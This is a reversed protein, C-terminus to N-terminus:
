ADEGLPKLHAFNARHPKAGGFAESAVMAKRLCLGIDHEDTFGIGGHLQVADRTVKMAATSARAKARSIAARAAPTPGDTDWQLAAQEISASLVEVELRMDVAMHQLIQFQGIAKGFQVRTKLYAVTMETATQMIGLSYAATALAAEALAPVPNVDLVECRAGEFRVTAFSGGDQTGALELEVGSADAAVLAAQTKGVVLFFDASGAMPVYLKTGIVKGDTVDLLQEPSLAGRADQWAPIVLKEGSLHSDLAEGELLASALVAPILPEPVLGRGLEEALAVYALLGLGAGNKEEPTRLAPWGLECMDSWVKRDFGPSGYRLKRIRGLDGPSVIGRASDRIMEMSSLIDPDIM